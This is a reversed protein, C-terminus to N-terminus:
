FYVRVFLDSVLGKLSRAGSLGVDWASFPSAQIGARDDPDTNPDGQSKKTYNFIAGMSTGLALQPLGIFGLQIEAEIMARLNLSYIKPGSGSPLFALFEAQPMASVTVHRASALVFNAGLMPGVGLYTDWSGSGPTHGGGAAIALGANYAYHEHVWKRIGISNIGVACAVPTGTDDVGCRPDPGGISRNLSSLRRVDVGWKGVVKQHDTRPDHKELFLAKMAERREQTLERMLGHNPGGDHHAPGGNCHPCHGNKCPSDEQGGRCHPCKGWDCDAGDQGGGTCHPCAGKQGNHEGPGEGEGEGEASEPVANAAGSQPAQVATQAEDGDGNDQAHAAGAKLGALTLVCAFVLFTPTTPTFKSM